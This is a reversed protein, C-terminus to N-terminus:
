KIIVKKTKGDKTRIINIGKQPQSIRKGEVTFIINEMDENVIEKINNQLTKETVPRISMGYYLSAYSVRTKAVGKNNKNISGYYSVDHSFADRTSTWFYATKGIGNEKDQYKEGASPIFMRKNNLGVVYFGDVTNLTGAEFLCSNLFEEMENKTPMRWSNGWKCFAVDYVTGSIDKPLKSLENDTYYGDGNKDNYYNYDDWWFNYSPSTEGWQFYSGYKEKSTANYNYTSWNVSLGLDIYEHGDIYGSPSDDITEDDKGIASVNVICTATLNNKTKVKITASGIQKGFVRGKDVTAIDKNDSTWTYTTSAGTPQLEPILTVMGNVSIQKSQPLSISTPPIEEPDTVLVNCTATLKSNQNVTITFSGSGDSLGRVVIENDIINVIFGTGTKSWSLSEITADKPLIEPKLTKEEGVKVTISSPLKISNPANYKCIISIDKYYTASRQHGNSDRWGEVFVLRINATYDFYSNVTIVAENAYNKQFGLHTDWYDSLYTVQDITGNSNKPSIGITISEGVNLYYPNAFLTQTYLLFISICMFLLWNHNCKSIDFFFKRM